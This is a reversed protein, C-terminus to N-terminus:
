SGDNDAPLHEVFAEVGQELSQALEVVANQLHTEMEISGVPVSEEPLLWDFYSGGMVKELGVYVWLRLLFSGESFLEASRSMRLTVSGPRSSPAVLTCRQWQFIIEHHLGAHTRLLNRTMQDSMIDIQTRPYLMRLGDNLPTTMQQLRRVAAQALNKYQEQTDQEAISSRLKERLRAGAASVDLMVPEGALDEWLALDRAVQEKSLRGEPHLRTM